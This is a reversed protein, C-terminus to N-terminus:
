QTPRHEKIDFEVGGSGVERALISYHIASPYAIVKAKFTVDLDRIIEADRNEPPPPFAGCHSIHAQWGFIVAGHQVAYTEGDTTLPEVASGGARAEHWYATPTLRTLEEFKRRTAEVFRRDICTRLFGLPEEPAPNM